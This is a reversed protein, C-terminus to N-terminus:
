KKSAIVKMEIAINGPLGAVAITTRAPRHTPFFVSFVENYAKFDKMDLLYSNIEIIHELDSGASILIKKINELTARTELRIDYHRKIGDEGMELGPIQDTVFDRSAIGSVYILDGCEVAHAYNGLPIPAEECFISIVEKKKM